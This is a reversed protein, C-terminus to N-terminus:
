QAEYRKQGAACGLFRGVFGFTLMNDGHIHCRHQTSGDRQLDCGVRQEIRRALGDRRPRKREVATMPHMPLDAAVIAAHRQDEKVAARAAAAEGM